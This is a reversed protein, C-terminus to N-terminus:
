NAQITNITHNHNSFLTSIDRQPRQPLFAERYMSYDELLAHLKQMTQKTSPDQGFTNIFNTKKKEEIKLFIFENLISHLNKM